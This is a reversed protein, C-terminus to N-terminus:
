PNYMTIAVVVKACVRWHWCWVLSFCTTDLWSKWRNMKWMWWWWQQLLLQHFCHSDEPREQTNNGWSPLRWIPLLSCSVSPEMPQMWLPPVIMRKPGVISSNSQEQQEQLQGQDKQPQDHDNDRDLQKKKKKEKKKM